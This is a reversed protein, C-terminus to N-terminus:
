RWLRDKGPSAVLGDSVCSSMCLQERGRSRSPGDSCSVRGAERKLRIGRQGCGRGLEGPVRGRRVEEEM